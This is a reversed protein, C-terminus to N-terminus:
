RPLKWPGLREKSDLEDMWDQKLMKKEEQREPHMHALLCMLGLYRENSDLM